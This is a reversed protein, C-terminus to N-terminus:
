VYDNIIGRSLHMLMAWARTREQQPTQPTLPAAFANKEMALIQELKIQLGQTWSGEGLLVERVPGFDHSVETAFANSILLKGQYTAQLGLDPMLRAREELPRIIRDKLSPRLLDAHKDLYSVLQNYKEILGTLESTIVGAGQTVDIDMPGDTADKIVGTVHGSDLSLENSTQRRLAGEQYLTASRPPPASDLGYIRALDGDEVDTIYYDPGRGPQTSTVQLRVVRNMPQSRPAPDYADQESHVVEAKLSSDVGDIARALRKLFDEQTDGANATVELQHEEGEISLVLSYTGPEIELSAVPNQPKSVIERGQAPMQVDITHRAPATAEQDATASVAQPKPSVATKTRSVLDDPPIHLNDIRQALDIARIRVQDLVRDQEKQLINLRSESFRSNEWLGQATHSDPGQAQPTAPAPFRGEPTVLIPSDQLGKYKITISM